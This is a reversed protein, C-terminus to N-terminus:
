FLGWFGGWVVFSVRFVVWFYGGVVPPLPAV